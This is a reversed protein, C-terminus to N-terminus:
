PRRRRWDESSDEHVKARLTRSFDRRLWKRDPGKISIAIVDIVAGPEVRIEDEGNYTHNTAVTVWWDVDDMEVVGHIRVELGGGKSPGHRTGFVTRAGDEVFSWCAGLNEWEIHKTHPVRIARHIQMRGRGERRATAVAKALGEYDPALNYIEKDRQEDDLDDFDPSVMDETEVHEVDVVGESLAWEAIADASGLYQHDRSM